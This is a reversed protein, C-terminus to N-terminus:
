WPLAAREDIIDEYRLSAMWYVLTMVAKVALGIWVLILDYRRLNAEVDGEDDSDSTMDFGRLIM